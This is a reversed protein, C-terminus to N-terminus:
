ELISNIQSNRLCQKIMVLLQKQYNGITEAQKALNCFHKFHFDSVLLENAYHLVLVKLDSDTNDVM